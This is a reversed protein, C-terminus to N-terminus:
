PTAFLAYHVIDEPQGDIIEQDKRRGDPQMGSREMVRVMAANAAVTGGTVKRIAHQDLLYRMLTSWAEIGHGKGSQTRDGIMIGLDATHHQPAIYATMTGIMQDTDRLRIALFLNPGDDFSSLYTRCSEISHTVFRQNSYRVVEPDGLWGVYTPTIDEATMNRLRLRASECTVISKMALNWPQM